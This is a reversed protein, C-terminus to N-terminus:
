ERKVEWYVPHFLWVSSQLQLPLHCAWVPARCHIMFCNQGTLSLCFDAPPSLTTKAKIMFSVPLSSAVRAKVEELRSHSIYHNYPCSM